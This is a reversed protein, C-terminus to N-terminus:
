EGGKHRGSQSFPRRGGGFVVLCIVCKRSQESGEEGLFRCPRTDSGQLSQKETPGERIVRYVTGVVWRGDKTGVKNKEM